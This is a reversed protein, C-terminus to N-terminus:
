YAGMSTQSITRFTNQALNVMGGYTKTYTGLDTIQNGNALRQSNQSSGVNISAIGLQGFLELGSDISGNGNKDLVLLGDDAKIWGTNVKIGNGTADFLIGAVTGVTELGDGDLDLTLPYSRQPQTLAAASDYKPKTEPDIGQREPFAYKSFFEDYDGSQWALRLDRLFTFRQQEKDNAPNMWGFQGYDPQPPSEYWRGDAPNYRYDNISYPDIKSIDDGFESLNM